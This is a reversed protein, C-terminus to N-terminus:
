RLASVWRGHGERAADEDAYVEVENWVGAQTSWATGFAAHKGCDCGVGEPTEGLWQTTVTVSRGSDHEIKSLAVLRYVPDDRLRAWTVLDIPEGARDM